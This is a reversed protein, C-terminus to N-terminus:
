GRKFPVEKKVEKEVKRKKAEDYQHCLVPLQNIAANLGAVIGVTKVMENTGSMGLIANFYGDKMQILLQRYYKWSPSNNLSKLFEYDEATLKMAIRIDGNSDKLVSPEKTLDIEPEQM